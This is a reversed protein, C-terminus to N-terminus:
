DGYLLWSKEFPSWFSNEIMTQITVLNKQHGVIQCNFRKKTAFSEQKWNNAVLIYDGKTTVHLAWYFSELFINCVGKRCKTMLSWFMKIALMLAVLVMKWDRVIITEWWKHGVKQNSEIAMCLIWHFNELFM